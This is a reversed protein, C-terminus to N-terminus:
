ESYQSIQPTRSIIISIFPSYQRCVFNVENRIYKQCKSIAKVGEGGKKKGTGLQHVPDRHEPSM